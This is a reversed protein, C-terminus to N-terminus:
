DAAGEISDRARAIERLEVVVILHVIMGILWRPHPKPRNENERSRPHKPFVLDSGYVSRRTPLRFEAMM